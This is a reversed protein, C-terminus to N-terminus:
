AGPFTLGIEITRLIDHEELLYTYVQLLLVIQEDVNSTYSVANKVRKYGFKM